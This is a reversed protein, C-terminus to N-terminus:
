TIIAKPKLTINGAEKDKSSTLKHSRYLEEFLYDFVEKVNDGTRSSALFYKANFETEYQKILPMM